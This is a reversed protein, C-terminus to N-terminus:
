RVLKRKTGRNAILPSTDTRKQNSRRMGDLTVMNTLHPLLLPVTQWRYTLLSKQCQRCSLCVGMNIPFHCQRELASPNELREEEGSDVDDYLSYLKGLNESLCISLKEFMQMTRCARPEQSTVLREGLFDIHAPQHSNHEQNIKFDLAMM